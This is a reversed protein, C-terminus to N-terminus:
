IALDSSPFWSNKEQTWGHSYCITGLKSCSRSVHQCALLLAFGPVSPTNLGLCAGFRRSKASILRFLYPFIPIEVPRYRHAALESRMFAVEHTAVQNSAQGWQVIPIIKANINDYTPKRFYPYGRIMWEVPNDMTYLGVTKSVGMEPFGWLGDYDGM